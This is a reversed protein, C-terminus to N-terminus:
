MLYPQLVQEMLVSAAPLPDLGAAETQQQIQWYNLVVTDPVMGQIYANLAILNGLVGQAWANIIANPDPSQNPQGHTTYWAVAAKNPMTAPNPYDALDVMQELVFVIKAAPLGSKLQAYLAAADSEIQGLSRVGSATDNIGLMVVVIEPKLGVCASVTTEMQPDIMNTLVAYFTYPGIAMNEATLGTQQQFVVPWTVGPVVSIEGSLSDGLVCLHIFNRPPPATPSSGGGSCSALFVFLISIILIRM